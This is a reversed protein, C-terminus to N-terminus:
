KRPFLASDEDDGQSKAFRPLTKGKKTSITKKDFHTAYLRKEMCVEANKAFPQRASAVEHKWAITQEIDRQKRNGRAFEEDREPQSFIM